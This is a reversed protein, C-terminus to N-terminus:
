FFTGQSEGHNTAHDYAVDIDKYEKLLRDATKGIDAELEACNARPPLARFRRAMANAAKLGNEKHGDEHYRLNKM